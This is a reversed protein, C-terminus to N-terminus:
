QMCITRLVGLGGVGLLAEAHCDEYNAHGEGDKQRRSVYNQRLSSKNITSYIRRYNDDIYWM